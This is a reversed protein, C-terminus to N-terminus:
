SSASEYRRIGLCWIYSALFWFVVVAALMYGVLDIRSTDFLFGVGFSGSLLVPLVTTFMTRSRAPYMFDPWRQVQQCQMRVFNASDGGKTWFSLFAINLETLCMVLFALCFTFPMMIWATLSLDIQLGYFILLGVSVPLLLLSAPRNVATMMDFVSGLPRVLRFDLAGTRIETSFNWFNPAILGNHCCFMSQIWFVFFMFQERNWPGLQEVHHFLFNVPLFTTLIAAAEVGMLLLFSVRFSMLKAM